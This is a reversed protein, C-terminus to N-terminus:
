AESEIEHRLVPTESEVEPQAFPDPGTTSPSFTDAGSRSPESSPGFRALARDQKTASPCRETWVFVAAGGRPYNPKRM